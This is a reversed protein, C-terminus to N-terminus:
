DATVTALLTKRVHRERASDVISALHPPYIPKDLFYDFIDYKPRDFESCVSSRHGCSSPHMLVMVAPELGNEGEFKRILEAAAFGGMVPMSLDMLVCWYKGAHRKYEDCAEQGNQAIKFNLALRHLLKSLIMVHVVADEVVLITRPDDSPPIWRAMHSAESSLAKSPPTVWLEPTRKLTHVSLNLQSRPDAIKAPTATPMFITRPLPTAQLIHTQETIQDQYRRWRNFWTNLVEVLQSLSISHPQILM